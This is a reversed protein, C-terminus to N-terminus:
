PIVKAYRGTLPVLRLRQLTSDSATLCLDPGQATGDAFFSAITPDEPTCILTSVDLFLTQEQRIARLHTVASQRVVDATQRQLQLSPSPGRLGATAVTTVLALITLAVLVEFMSLGARAPNIDCPLTM